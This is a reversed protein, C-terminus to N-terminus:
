PRNREETPLWSLSADTSQSPVYELGIYGQYALEKLRALIAPYNIEGTGPEHRGPVDAIQVHGIYPFCGTVTNLLNGEAMQAHYVDYQLQVHPHDVERVIELADATFNLLYDPRDITNLAEILLKVGAAEARPAAWALNEIASETQAAYEVDTIKNGALVNLGACKLRTAAELALDFSHRFYDRRDPIGLTGFEGNTTDGPPVDFLAIALEMDDVRAKIEDIGEQYPFLFEITVFGAGAALAFRDLFPVEYYLMSINAAFRLKM